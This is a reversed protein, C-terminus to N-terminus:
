NCVQNQKSPGTSRNYQELQNEQESFLFRRILNTQLGNQNSTVLQAIIIETYM